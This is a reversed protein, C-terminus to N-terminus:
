ACWDDYMSTFDIAQIGMLGSTSSAPCQNGNEFCRLSSLMGSPWDQVLFGGLVTTLHNQPDDLSCSLQTPQERAVCMDYSPIHLNEAFFNFPAHTPPPFTAFSPCSQAPTFQSVLDLATIKPLIHSSFSPSDSVQSGMTQYSDSCPSPSTGISSRDESIYGEHDHMDKSPRHFTALCSYAYDHIYQGPSALDVEPM